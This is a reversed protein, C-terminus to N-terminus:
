ETRKYREIFVHVEKRVAQYTTEIDDGSSIVRIRDGAEEALRLYGQRVKEHFCRDRKEMRDAPGGSGARKLGIEVDVDLLLVLDPDVGKRCIRDIRRLLGLDMGLGHGQYAFTATNYRDCLVVRGERLNPVIFEEVHQARDAEFLLLEAMRGLSVEDKHLLIERIRNGLDTGGPEATLVADVGEARLEKHLRASQTSKGCGEPGEFTIFLGERMESAM